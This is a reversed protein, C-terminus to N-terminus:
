NDTFSVIEFNTQELMNTPILVVHYDNGNNGINRVIINDFGGSKSAVFSREISGWGSEVCIKLFEYDAWDSSYGLNVFQDEVGGGSTKEVMKGSSPSEFCETSDKCLYKYMDWSGNKSIIKVTAGGSSVKAGKVNESNKKSSSIVWFAVPVVMFVIFILVMSLVSRKSMDLHVWLKFHTDITKM